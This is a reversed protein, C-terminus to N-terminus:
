KLWVATVFFVSIFSSLFTGAVAAAADASNAGAPPVVKASVEAPSVEM